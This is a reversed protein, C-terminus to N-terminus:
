EKQRWTHNTLPKCHFKEAVQSTQLTIRNQSKQRIIPQHIRVPISGAHFPEQKLFFPGFVYENGGSRCFRTSTSVSNLSGLATMILDTPHISLHECVARQRKTKSRASPMSDQLLAAVKWSVWHQVLLVPYTNDSYYPPTKSLTHSSKSLHWDFCRYCWLSQQHRPLGTNRHYQIRVTWIDLHQSPDTVVSALSTDFLSLFLIKIFM